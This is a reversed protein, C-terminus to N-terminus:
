GASFKKAVPSCRPPPNIIELERTYNCMDRRSYRAIIILFNTRKNRIGGGMTWSVEVMDVVGVDVCLM